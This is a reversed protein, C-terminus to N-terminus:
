SATYTVTLPAGACGSQDVTASDAMSVPVTVTTTAGKALVGAPLAATGSLLAVDNDDCDAPGSVGSVRVSRGAYSVAYPNPNTFTVTASVASGGPVLGTVESAAFTIDAATNAAATATGTGTGAIGTLYYASAVGAVLVAGISGALAAVVKRHASRRM